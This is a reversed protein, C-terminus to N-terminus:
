GEPRSLTASPEEVRGPNGKPGRGADYRALVERSWAGLRDECIAERMAAELRAMFALNHLSVLRPGLMEGAKFLHRLYARSYHRCAPCPCGSEVPSLDEAYQARRLNVPGGETLATGTRGVRTPLVCDFMDVGRRVAEIVSPPSGVGMLYRPRSAPLREAVAAVLDYTLAKTEGVSLGGIAYGPFDLAVLEDAARRRLDIEFGGQVIGFLAQDTRRHADRARRAWLVTRRQADRAEARDAPYGLCVDLPMIIDAGLHEEIEIIQEPTFAVDQGDIPSRFWVGEDAVKRLHPLSFVQYGGSDTLLPREWHMFAHLGGARAIVGAGPRLALHFTNALVIQAGAAEVEEPTLARVTGHTGVPMFVPTRVTGHPTHLVGARAGTERDTHILDFRLAVARLIACTRLVM